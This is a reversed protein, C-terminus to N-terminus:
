DNEEVILFDKIQQCVINIDYNEKIYKKANTEYKFILNKNNTLKIINDLLENKINNIDVKIVVDDPLESFWADDCVICAKGESLVRILAASTEGMSPYRLNIVIDSLSIFQNMTKIDVYGTKLINKNNVYNDVYDGEGVMVYVFDKFKEENELLIECVIHNLKTHAVFGFSTIIKKEESIGFKEKLYSNEKRSFKESNDYTFANIKKVCIKSSIQQVKSLNYFSHVMIKNESLLIEGNFPFLEPKKFTLLDINKKLMEKYYFYFEAGGYKYIKKYFDDKNQNIGIFLFYLVFDHLIVLGPYKLACEYIYGHFFPNNGINYIKYDFDNFDFKDKGYVLIKFKKKIEKNELKYDEILISIDFFKILRFILEESYESIGSKMPPFPSAYLLTPKKM